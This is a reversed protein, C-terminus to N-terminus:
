KFEINVNNKIKANPDDVTTVSNYLWRPNVWRWVFFQDQDKERFVVTTIEATYEYIVDLENGRQIFDLKIHKKNIPKIEVKDADVFIIETTVSDKSQLLTNNYNELRKNKIELDEITEKAKKLQALYNSAKAEKESIYDNLAKREVSWQDKEMAHKGSVTEYEKTTNKAITVFNQKEKKHKNCSKFGTFTSVALVIMIVWKVLDIYDKIKLLFDGIKSIILKM